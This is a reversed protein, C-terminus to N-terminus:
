AILCVAMLTQALFSMAEISLSDYTIGHLVMHPYQSLKCHVWRQLHKHYM